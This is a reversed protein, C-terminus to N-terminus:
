KAPRFLLHPELNGTWYRSLSLLERTLDSGLAAQLVMRETVPLPKSLRLIVHWGHGSKSPWEDQIELSCGYVEMADSVRPLHREFYSRAQDGDLDLLLHQGDGQHVTFGGAEAEERALQQNANVNSM